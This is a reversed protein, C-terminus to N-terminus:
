DYRLARLPDVRLARRAPLLAAFAVTVAFIVIAALYAMPDFNSIGYLVQRLLHSLAAAGAIGVILGIV